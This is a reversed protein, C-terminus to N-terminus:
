RIKPEQSLKGTQIKWGGFFARSISIGVAASFNEMLSLKWGMAFNYNRARRRQNESFLLFFISVFFFKERAAQSSQMPFVLKNENKGNRM